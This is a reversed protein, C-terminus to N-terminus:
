SNRQGFVDTSQDVGVKTAIDSPRIHRAYEVETVGATGVDGGFLIPKDAFRHVPTRSSTSAV